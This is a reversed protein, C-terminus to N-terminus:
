TYLKWPKFKSISSAIIALLSLWSCVSPLKCEELTQLFYGSEMSLGLNFCHPVRLSLGNMICSSIAMKNSRTMRFVSQSCIIITIAKDSNSIIMKPISVRTNFWILELSKKALKSSFEVMKESMCISLNLEMNQFTM